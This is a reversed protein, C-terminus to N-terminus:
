APRQPDRKRPQSKHSARPLRRPSSDRSEDPEPPSLPGEYKWSYGTAMNTWGGGEPGGRMLAPPFAMPPAIVWPSYGPSLPQLEDPLRIDPIYRIRAQPSAIPTLVIQTCSYNVEAPRADACRRLAEVLIRKVEDPSDGGRDRLEGRLWSWIPPPVEPIGSLTYGRDWAWWRTHRELTFPRDCAARDRNLHWVVPTIRRNRTRRQKWGFVCVQFNGARDREPLRQFAGTLDSRLREVSRGIDTWEPRGKVGIFAGSGALSTGILSQAIFTDTPIHDLYARGTYAVVVQADTACFVVAKNCNADFPSTRGARQQSLLRDSIHFVCGRTLLQLVQTVSADGAGRRVTLVNSSEASINPSRRRIHLRDGVWTARLNPAPQDIACPGVADFWSAVSQLIAGGYGRGPTKQASCHVDWSKDCPADVRRSQWLDHPHGSDPVTRPSGSTGAELSHVMTESRARVARLNARCTSRRGSRHWSRCCM